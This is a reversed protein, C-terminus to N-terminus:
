FIFALKYLYLSSYTIFKWTSFNHKEGGIYVINNVVHLLNPFIDRFIWICLFVGKECHYFFYIPATISSFITGSFYCFFWNYFNYCPKFHQKKVTTQCLPVVASFARKVIVCEELPMRFLVQVQLNSDNKFSFFYRIM